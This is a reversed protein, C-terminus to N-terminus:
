ELVQITSNAKHSVIHQAATVGGLSLIASMVPTIATWVYQPIADHYRTLVAGVISLALVVVYVYAGDIAPWKKRLLATVAVAFPVSVLTEIIDM